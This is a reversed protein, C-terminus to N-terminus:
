LLKVFYGRVWRGIFYIVHDAFPQWSYTKPCDISIKFEHRVAANDEFDFDAARLLAKVSGRFTMIVDAAALTISYIIYVNGDLVLDVFTSGLRGRVCNKAVMDLKGSNTLKAPLCRLFVVVFLDGRDVSPDRCRKEQRAKVGHEWLRM